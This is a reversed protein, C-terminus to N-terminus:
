EIVEVTDHEIQNDPHVYMDELTPIDREDDPNFMVNIFVTEELAYGVRRTGPPSMFTDGAVLEKRGGGESAVLIRGKAVIVLHETKHVKGVIAAGAPVTLKRLYMGRAFHHELVEEVPQLQQVGLKFENIQERTVANM